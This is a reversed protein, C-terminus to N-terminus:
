VESSDEENGDETPDSSPQPIESRITDDEPIEVTEFSLEVPPLDKVKEQLLEDEKKLVEETLEPHLEYEPFTLELCKSFSYNLADFLEKDILKAKDDSEYSARIEQVAGTLAACCYNCIEVVSMPESTFMGDESIVITPKM